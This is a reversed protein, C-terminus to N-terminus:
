KTQLIGDAVLRARLDSSLVRVTMQYFVQSSGEKRVTSHARKDAMSVYKLYEGGDSFFIDFYDRYRVRANVETIIPRSDFGSNGNDVGKFLVEYVANKKCQEKADSRNRGEGWVRLTLSGDLEKGICETQFSQAQIAYGNFLALVAMFSFLLKRM